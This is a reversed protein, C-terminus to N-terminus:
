GGGDMKQTMENMWVLARAVETPQGGVRHSAPAETGRVRRGRSTQLSKVGLM